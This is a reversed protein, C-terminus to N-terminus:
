FGAGYARANWGNNKRTKKYDGFKWLLLIFSFAKGFIDLIHTYLYALTEYAFYIKNEEAFKLFFNLLVFYLVKHEQYKKGEGIQQTRNKTGM